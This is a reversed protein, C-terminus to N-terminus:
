RVDPFGDISVRWEEDDATKWVVIDPEEALNFKEEETLTPLMKYLYERDQFKENVLSYYGYKRISPLVDHFVWRKFKEAEPKRSMFILRYLGPENVCIFKQAGGRKGSHGYSNTVTMKEDDPFDALNKRINKLGLIKAVDVAVWWIEEDDNEFYRFDGFVDHAAVKATLAQIEIKSM